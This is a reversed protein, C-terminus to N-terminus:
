DTAGCSTGAHAVSDDTLRVVLLGLMPLFGWDPCPLRWGPAGCPLGLLGTDSLGFGGEM